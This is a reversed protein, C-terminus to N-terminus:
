KREGFSLSLFTVNPNKSIARFLEQGPFCEDSNYMANVYYGPELNRFLDILGMRKETLERWEGSFGNVLHLSFGWRRLSETLHYSGSPVFQVTCVYTM